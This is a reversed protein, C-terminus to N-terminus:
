AKRGYLKVKGSGTTTFTGSSWALRLGNIGGSAVLLSTRMVQQLPLSTMVGFVGVNVRGAAASILVKGTAYASPGISIGGSLSMPNGAATQGVTEVGAVINHYQTAMLGASTWTSGANDSFWLQLVSSASNGVSSFDLVFEDYTNDIVVGGTGHVFDITSPAATITSSALLSWAGAPINVTTLVTGTLGTMRNLETHTATVQGTVNPFSTKVTSKILKIHAAGEQVVDALAPNSTNLDSIYTASEVTM